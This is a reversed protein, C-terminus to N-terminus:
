TGYPISPLRTCDEGRNEAILLQTDFFSRLDHPRNKYGARVIARKMEWSVNPTGLFPKEVGNNKMGFARILPTDPTLVEGKTKKRESLYQVILNGLKENIFSFYQHGAKSLHKRVIVRAPYKTFHPEPDLELEPFDMLKLGDSGDFNGLSELRLGAYAVIGCSM